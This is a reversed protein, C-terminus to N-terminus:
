RCKYQKFTVEYRFVLMFYNLKKHFQLVTHIIWSIYAFTYLHKPRELVYM